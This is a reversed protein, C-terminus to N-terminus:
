RRRGNGRKRKEDEKRQIIANAEDNCEDIIRLIELLANSQDVVAGKDPLHGRKFMGYFMFARGFFGPSRKLVQRPCAYEQQGDIEVPLEAPRVWNEPGDIEGEAPSRWRIATCGWRVQNKCTDCQREPM